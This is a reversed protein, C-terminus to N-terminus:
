SRFQLTVRREWTCGILANSMNKQLLRVRWSQKARAKDPVRIKPWNGALGSLWRVIKSNLNPPLSFMPHRSWVVAGFSVIGTSSLLNDGIWVKNTNGELTLQSSLVVKLQANIKAKSRGTIIRSVTPWDRLWGSAFNVDFAVQDSRNGVSTM